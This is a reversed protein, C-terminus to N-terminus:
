YWGDSADVGDVDAHGPKVRGDVDKIQNAKSPTSARTM